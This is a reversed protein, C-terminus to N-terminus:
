AESLLRRARPTASTYVLKVSCSGDDFESESIKGYIEEGEILCMVDDLPSLRLDSRLRASHPGAAVLDAASLAGIRKNVIKALQAHRPQELPTPETEPEPLRIGHEGGIGRVEHVRLPDSVGKFRIEFTRSTEVPESASRLTDDSVFIQGGITTDEIRGALNINRGVAAYKMRRRSGITGVIADGTHIGIGVSLEPLGAVSHRENLEAMALQLEVAAAIAHDAASSDPVPAGFLVLLGDGLIENVMGLRQLIVDCATDLYGNLTAVAAEAPLEECLRTYGRIDVMMVTLERREGNLTPGDVSSLLEAVVDDSVYKGFVDEVYRNRAALEVARRRAWEGRRLQRVVAMAKAITDQLDDIDLPKIQFDFAGRRMASRVTRMDGYATLVITKLPLKMEEIVALLALGDMVPMNLDTIVVDLAPDAEIASVAQRGDGAFTLDINGARIDKRFRLRFLTQIDDEDDVVLMRIPGDESFDRDDLELLAPDLHRRETRLEREKEASTTRTWSPSEAISPEHM